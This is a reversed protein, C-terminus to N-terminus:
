SLCARPWLGLFTPDRYPSPSPSGANALRIYGVKVMLPELLSHKIWASSSDQDPGQWACLGGDMEWERSLHTLGLDSWEQASCLM